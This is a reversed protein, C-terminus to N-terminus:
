KVLAGTDRDYRYIEASRSNVHVRLVGRSTDDDARVRFIQGSSCTVLTGSSFGEGSQKVPKLTCFRDSSRRLTLGGNDNVLTEFVTGGLYDISPFWSGPPVHTPTIYPMGDITVVVRPLLLGKKSIYIHPAQSGAFHPWRLIMHIHPPYDEHGLPDNTDFGMLHIRGLGKRAVEEDLGLTHIAERLGFELNLAARRQLEIEPWSGMAYEGARRARFAHEIRIELGPSQLVTHLDMTSSRAGPPVAVPVDFQVRQGQVTFPIHKQGVIVTRIPHDDVTVQVGNLKGINSPVSVCFFLELPNQGKHCSWGFKTNFPGNVVRCSRCNEPLHVSWELHGGQRAKVLRVAVVSTTVPPTSGDCRAGWIVLSIMGLMAYKTIHHRYTM